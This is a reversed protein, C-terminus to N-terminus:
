FRGQGKALFVFQFVQLHGAKHHNPLSSMGKETADFTSEWLTVTPEVMPWIEPGRRPENDAIFPVLFHTGLEAPTRVM